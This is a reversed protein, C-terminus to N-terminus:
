SVSASKIELRLDLNGNWKKEENEESIKSDLIELRWFESDRVYRVPSGYYNLVLGKTVVEFADYYYLVRTNHLLVTVSFLLATTIAHNM